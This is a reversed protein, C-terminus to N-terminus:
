RKSSSKQYNLVVGVAYASDSYITIDKGKAWQLAKIVATLEALQVSQPGKLTGETLTELEEGECRSGVVAWGAKLEGNSQRWCCGDTFM